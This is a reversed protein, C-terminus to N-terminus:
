APRAGSASRERTRLAVVALLLLLGAGTLVFANGSVNQLGRWRYELYAPNDGFLM